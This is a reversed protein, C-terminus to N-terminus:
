EILEWSVSRTSFEMTMEEIKTIDTPTIQEIGAALDALNLTASIASIVDAGAGSEALNLAAALSGIADVGAGSDTLSKSAYVDYQSAGISWPSDAIGENYRTQNDISKGFLTDGATDNRLFDDFDGIVSTVDDYPNRGDANPATLLCDADMIADAGGFYYDKNNLYNPAMGGLDATADGAV